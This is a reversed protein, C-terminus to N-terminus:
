FFTVPLVLEIRNRGTGGFFDEDLLRSYRIGFSISNQNFFRTDFFLTGGASRFNQKFSSGDTYFDNATAHTYDFFLAGRLRLLYVLNGFGGDPYAIPFHYTLGLKNMDELNQAAYGKSFPFDNSFSIVDDKGKQQHALSVVFSHNTVLGPFYFSGTALLQTASAGAVTAKYNVSISQAFAPYINKRARQTQNNFAVYNNLYTYSRDAYQAAYPQQFSTRNFYLDSGITLGTFNKGQSFNLPVQLGGHLQTENWYVYSGKAFGRRDLTYDAGASLYPFLAGYIADFSFEKYGENTNYNFSVQSQFTNLVNEGVIAVSYNPDSINPILSHFNFLGHLKSYKTVSLPKDTVRALMNASSDKELAHIGILPLNSNAYLDGADIWKLERSDAGTIQYGTATFGVWAMKHDTVAPQYSGITVDNAMPLLEYLKNAGVMLAFLRDQREVVASFYATDGKLATFGIPKFTFPLLYQANGTAIDILALTMKGEANRVASLLRDSKYFKPYTYFLKQPNPVVKLLKGDANLIHLESKGLPSVQVAVINDGDASFAPAFYKAKQTIRHEQGTNVDLLMLESYDRYGWRADPRYTAYVVKGNRYDFYNDLSYSRTSIKREKEGTKVVFAPVHDYSSKMYILTSDNLFAPYERDADFHKPAATKVPQNQMDAAFQGKFYDLGQNAFAKFSTGTYKKVANQFPYFGTYFGAADHTINKWIDDGYKDRGYAVLMYGLPYHDPTYDRYSGNRLKMYSYSKGAAWLARYGNFFYPLRGRGQRSVHTENFVADGEFFWNPVSLDNGLAQGGEGFLIHLFRSLGVNFNNYQQVHRFEHIALQQQWPLSGIEFSNQQPTLFFESRFPALGVYANSITTQNQLVISIQRQKNGITLKILGNMQQVINAVNVAATDMGYPFIVKAAPTNVQKWKISPPNGGFEQAAATTAITFLLPALLNPLIKYASPRKNM